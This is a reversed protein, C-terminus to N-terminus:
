SAAGPGVGLKRSLEVFDHWDEPKTDLKKTERIRQNAWINRLRYGYFQKIYELPVIGDKELINLREFLGMYSEVRAWDENSDPGAGPGAWQGKPRLAIHIDWHVRFEGELVLLFSGGVVRKNTEAAV